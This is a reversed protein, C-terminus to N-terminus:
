EDDNEPKPDYDTKKLPHFTLRDFYQYPAFTEENIVPATLCVCFEFTDKPKLAGKITIKDAYDNADLRDEASLLLLSDRSSITLDYYTTVPAINQCRVKRFVTQGSSLNGLDLTQTNPWGNAMYLKIMMIESKYIRNDILTYMWRGTALMAAGGSTDGSVFWFPEYDLPKGQRHKIVNIVNPMLPNPERALLALIGDHAACAKGLGNLYLMASTKKGAGSLDVSIHNRFFGLLDFEVIYQGLEPPINGPTVDQALGILLYITPGINFINCYDPHYRYVRPVPEHTLNYLTGAHQTVDFASYPVEFRTLNIVGDARGQQLSGTHVALHGDGEYDLVYLFDNFQSLGLVKKVGSDMVVSARVASTDRSIWMLKKEVEDYTILSHDKYDYALGRLQAKEPIKYEPDTIAPPYLLRTNAYYM